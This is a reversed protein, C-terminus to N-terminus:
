RHHGRGPGAGSPRAAGLGVDREPRSMSAVGTPPGRHRHPDDRRGETGVVAVVGYSPRGPRRRGRPLSRCEPKRLVSGALQLRAPDLHGVGFRWSRLPQARREAGRRGVVPVDAKVEVAYAGHPRARHRRHRRGCQGAVRVVAGPPIRRPGKPPSCGPRSWPRRTARCPWACARRAASGSRRSSRTPGLRPPPRGADDSGAPPATSGHTTSCRRRGRRRHCCTCARARRTLRRHRRALVMSERGEASGRHRRRQALRGARPYRARELDVTVPNAGPNRRALLREQARGPRRRRRAALVDSAGARLRYSILGREDGSNVSSAADGRPRRGPAVRTGSWPGTTSGPLRASRQRPRPRRGVGIRAGDRSSRAFASRATPRRAVGGALPRRPAAALLAVASRWTTSARPCGTVGSGQPGPCSSATAPDSGGAVRRCVRRRTRRASRGSSRAPAHRRRCAGHRGRRGARRACCAKRLM